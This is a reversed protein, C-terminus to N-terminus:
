NQLKWNMCATATAVSADGQGGSLFTRVSTYPSCIEGFTCRYCLAVLVWSECNVLLWLTWDNQLSWNEVFVSQWTKITTEQLTLSAITMWIKVDVGSEAVNENIWMNEQSCTEVACVLFLLQVNSNLVASITDLQVNFFGIASLSWCHMLTVM